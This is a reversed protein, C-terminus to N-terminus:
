EKRSTTEERESDVDELYGEVLDDKNVEEELLKLEEETSDLLKQVEKGFKIKERAFYPIVRFAAVKNQWVAGNYDALIYAGGALRKVVIMPGLYRPKMKRDASMEIATNKVLVLDGSNFHYNKIKHKNDEQLKMVRRVKEDTLKHRMADVHQVHKALAQARLGILESHTAIKDPYTVLWTAEALDLPLTPHAGTIMFYPSCGTGKRITVRDAWAIHPLYFYWKKIDGATAKYLM